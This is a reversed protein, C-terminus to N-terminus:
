GGVTAAAARRDEVTALTIGAVLFWMAAGAVALVRLGATFGAPDAPTGAVAGFVAVGLATGVQRATNNIGSALGSRDAPVASVAAAVSSATFLAAGVGLGLLAPVHAAWGRRPGVLLLAAAGHAAVLAGGLMVPRPGLRATLRGTVPALVALPVFLPLLAVGAALPSRHEVTQLDLTTVFLTGNMVLNMVLAGLNPGVFSRRRLLDPPLMPARTSRERVVLGGLALVAVVVAALAPVGVGRHGVEVVGGVLAALLVATALLGPGDVPQRSRAAASPVVAPVAILALVVVPANAWFVLRWGGTTVLAGGLLPGAPLALSSVGAWVGLARAQGARDPHAETIVALSGPLLLAAGVGQLARGVVLLGITPALACMVSAVGFVALGSLVVRRHGVRDGVTGGGLLLSGIAVAYADVVWPLADPGAGLDVGISPLAVNVVTVDLLVLFMGVCMVVLVRGPRPAARRSAGSADVAVV